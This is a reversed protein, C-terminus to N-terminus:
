TVACETCDSDEDPPVDKDRLVMREINKLKTRASRLLHLIFETEFPTLNAEKRVPM